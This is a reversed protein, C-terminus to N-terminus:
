DPELSDAVSRCPRELVRRIIDTAAFRSELIRAVQKAPVCAQFKLRDASDGVALPDFVPLPVEEAAVSRALAAVTTAPVGDDIGVGMNSARAPAGLEREIWAALQLNAVLGASTLWELRGDRRTTVITEDVDGPVAGARIRSMSERARRSWFEDERDDIEVARCMQCLEYSLPVAAGMWRSRGGHPAPIVAVTRRRWDVTRVQWGRGGLSLASEDGPRTLSLPHVTGIPRTGHMVTLLPESVFVSLIEQFHRWGFEAEGRTGFWAVGSDEFLLDHALMHNWISEVAPEDIAAQELFRGLPAQWQGRPLGHEQLTLAMLQQAVIHFPLPPPTVPEVFGSQWLRLLAAARVLADDELALFLCNRRSNARRGTRGLRQLFSAVRAPADIQIVRDLDGVDIGLELTSTAVIVCNRRLAFSEEAARREELGLSSHSVFTEVGRARLLSALDEVRARSDCFVLRKEGRHLQSIVQAANVLTGVHDLQVDTEAATPATTPNIVSGPRDAPSLWGLLAEPNGVTASLGVRQLPRGALHEIRSLVGLLHWGRDDGAFAHVEDVVVSRIERFFTAPDSRSSVLIAELSEPTTLLMDPATRRILRRRAEGIDGHWLEVSRGVLGALHELRDHLNNLLAKIPCVYFVSLGLWPETLMRSLLPLVAAETKGGATPALLLADDGEILPEIAAEQLPRLTSWRLTNVVHHQVAPHLRDFATM